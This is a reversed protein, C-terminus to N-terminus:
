IDSRAKEYDEIIALDKISKAFSMLEEGYRFLINSGVIKLHQAIFATEESLMDIAECLCGIILNVHSDPFDSEFTELNISQSLRQPHVWNSAEDYMAFYDVPKRYESSLQAITKGSAHEYWVKFPRLSSSEKIGKSAFKKMETVIQKEEESFVSKVKEDDSLMLREIPNSNEFLSKKAYFDLYDQKNESLSYASFALQLEFLTRILPMVGDTTGNKLLIFISNIRLNVNGVLQFLLEDEPSLSGASKEALKRLRILRRKTKDFIKTYSPFNVDM